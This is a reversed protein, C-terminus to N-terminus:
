SILSFAKPLRTNSRAKGSLSTSASRQEFQALFEGGGLGQQQM